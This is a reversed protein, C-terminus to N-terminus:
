NKNMNPNSGVLQTISDTYNYDKHSVKHLCTIIKSCFTYRDNNVSVTCGIYGAAVTTM